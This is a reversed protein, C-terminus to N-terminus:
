LSRLGESTVTFAGIFEVYKAAIKEAKTKMSGRSEGMYELCLGPMHM